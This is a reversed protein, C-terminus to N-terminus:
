SSVLKKIKSAVGFCFELNEKSYEKEAAVLGGIHLRNRLLRVENVDRRLEETSILGHQFCLDTIRVFDIRDIDKKDKKRRGAIIEESSTLKHLIKIDSYKWEDDLEIKKNGFIQKLKWLLLAEIVSATHIIITKRLSSVLADKDGCSESESLTLLDVIHDFATDLNSQLVPDDIFSFNSM